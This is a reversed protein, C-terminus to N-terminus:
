ETEDDLVSIEAVEYFGPTYIGEVKDSQEFLDLIQEARERTEAKEIINGAERDRVAFRYIKDINM